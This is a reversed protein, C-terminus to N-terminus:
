NVDREEVFAVGDPAQKDGALATGNFRRAPPSQIM